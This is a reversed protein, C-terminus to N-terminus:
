PPRCCSPRRARERGRLVVGVVDRVEDLRADVRQALLLLGHDLLAALFRADVQLQLGDGGAHEERRVHGVGVGVGLLLEKEMPSVIFIIEDVPRTTLDDALTVPTRM